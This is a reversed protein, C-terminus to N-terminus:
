ALSTLGLAQMAVPNEKYTRALLKLIREVQQKPSLYTTDVILNLEKFITDPDYSIGYQKLFATQDGLYRQKRQDAAAALENRSPKYGPSKDRASHRFKAVDLDCTFGITIQALNGPLFQANPIPCDKMLLLLWLLKTDLISVSHPYHKYARVVRETCADDIMLDFDPPPDTERVYQLVTEKNVAEDEPLNLRKRYWQTATRLLVKGVYVRRNDPIGLSQAFVDRTTTIGVAGVGLDEPYATLSYLLPIALSGFADPYSLSFSEPRPLPRGGRQIPLAYRQLRDLAPNEFHGFM